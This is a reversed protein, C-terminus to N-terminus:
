LSAGGGLRLQHALLLSPAEEIASPTVRLSAHTPPPQMLFVRTVGVKGVHLNATRKVKQTAHTFTMNSASVSRTEPNTWM